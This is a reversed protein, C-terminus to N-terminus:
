VGKIGKEEASKPSIEKRRESWPIYSSNWKSVGQVLVEM